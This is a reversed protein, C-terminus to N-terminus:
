KSKGCRDLVDHAAYKVNLDKDERLLKQLVIMASAHEKKMVQGLARVAAARVGADDFDLFQSIVILAQENGKTCIAGSMRTAAHRVSPNIDSLCQGLASIADKDDIKVFAPLVEVTSARIASDKNQLYKSLFPFARDEPLLAALAEWAAHSIQMNSSTVYSSAAAIAEENGRAQPFALAKLAARRKVLDRSRTDELVGRLSVLMRMLLPEGSACHPAFDEQSTVGVEDNVLFEQCLIPVGWQEQCHQQVTAFNHPEDLQLDLQDGTMNLVSIHISM